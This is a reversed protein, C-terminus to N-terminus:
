GGLICSDPVLLGILSGRARGLIRRPFPQQPRSILFRNPWVSVLSGSDCAPAGIRSITPLAAAGAALYLFRRRFLKM